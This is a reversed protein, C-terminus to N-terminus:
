SSIMAFDSYCYKPIKGDQTSLKSLKSLDKESMKINLQELQKVVSDIQSFLQSFIGTEIINQTLRLM